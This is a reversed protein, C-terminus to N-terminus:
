KGQTQPYEEIFMDLDDMVSQLEDRFEAADEAQISEEIITSGSKINIQMWRYNTRKSTIM